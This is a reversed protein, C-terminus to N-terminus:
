QSLSVLNRRVNDLACIFYLLQPRPPPSSLFYPLIFLALIYVFPGTYFLIIWSAHLSSHQYLYSSVASSRPHTNEYIMPVLIYLMQLIDFCYIFAWIATDWVNRALIEFGQHSNHTFYVSRIVHYVYMVLIEASIEIDSLFTPLYERKEYAVFTSLVLLPIARSKWSRPVLHSYCAGAAQLGPFSGTGM